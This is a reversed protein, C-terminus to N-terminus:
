GYVGQEEQNDIFVSTARSERTTWIRKSLVLKSLQVLTTDEVTGGCM